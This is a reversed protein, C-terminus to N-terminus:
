RNWTDKSTWFTIEPKTIMQYARGGCENCTFFVVGVKKGFNKGAKTFGTLMEAWSDDNGSFDCESNPCKGDIIRNEVPANTVGWTCVTKEITESNM